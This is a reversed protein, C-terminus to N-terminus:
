KKHGTKHRQFDLLLFTRDQIYLSSFSDAALLLPLRVCFLVPLVSLHVVSLSACLSYTSFLYLPSWLWFFSTLSSVCVTWFPFSAPSWGSFYLFIVDPGFISCDVFSKKEFHWVVKKREKFMLEVKQKWGIKGKTSRRPRLCKSKVLQFGSFVIHPLIEYEKM